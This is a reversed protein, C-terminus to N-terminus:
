RGECEPQTPTAENVESGDCCAGEGRVLMLQAHVSCYLVSPFGRRLCSCSVSMSVCSASIECLVM